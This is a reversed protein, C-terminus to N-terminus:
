HTMAYIMYNVGIRIGLESFKAPLRSTPTRGPTAWTWTTCIVVM